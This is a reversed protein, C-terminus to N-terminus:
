LRRARRVRQTQWVPTPEPELSVTTARHGALRAKSSNGPEALRRMPRASRQVTGRPSRCAPPPAGWAGPSGDRDHPASPCRCAPRCPPPGASGRPLLAGAPMQQASRARNHAAPTHALTGAAPRGRGKPMDQARVRPNDRARPSGAAGATPSEAAKNFPAAPPHPDVPGSGRGDMNFVCPCAADITTRRGAQIPCVPGSPRWRCRDGLIARCSSCFRCM